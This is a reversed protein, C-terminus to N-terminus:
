KYCKLFRKYILKNASIVSFSIVSNTASATFPQTDRKQNPHRTPPWPNPTAELPQAHFGRMGKPGLKQQCQVQRLVEPSRGDGVAAGLARYPEWSLLLRPRPDSM